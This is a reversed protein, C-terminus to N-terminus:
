EDVIEKNIKVMRGVLSDIADAYERLKASISHSERYYSEWEMNKLNKILKEKSYELESILSIIKEIGEESIKNNIDNPLQGFQERAKMVADKITYADIIVTSGDAKQVRYKKLEM